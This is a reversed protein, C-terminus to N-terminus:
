FYDDEDYEEDYDEDEEVFEHWVSVTSYAYELAAMEEAEIFEEIAKEGAEVVDKPIDIEEETTTGAYGMSTFITVKM